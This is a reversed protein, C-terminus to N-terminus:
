KMYVVKRTASWGNSARAVVLYVGAAGKPTWNLTHAGAGLAGQNLTAVQRGLMDYIAVTVPTADPANIVINLSPNFPNPYTSAIAWSSPLMGDEDVSTSQATFSFTDTSTTQGGDVDEAIVRWYYMTGDTLGPDSLNTGTFAGIELDHLLTGFDESESVQLTFTVAEESDPDNSGEWNFEIPGDPNVTAGDTPTLLAFAAPPQNPAVGVGALAVEYAAEDM